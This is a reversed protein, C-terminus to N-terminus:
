EKTEKIARVRTSLESSKDVWPRNKGKALVDDMKELVINRCVSKLRRATQRLINIFYYGNM